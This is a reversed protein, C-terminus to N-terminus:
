KSKLPVRSTNELMDIVKDDPKKNDLNIGKMKTAIWNQDDDSAFGWDEKDIVEGNKFNIAGWFSEDDNGFYLSWGNLIGNEYNAIMSYDKAVLIGTGHVYDNLLPGEWFEGSSLEGKYFIDTNVDRKWSSFDGDDNWPMYVGSSAFINKLDNYKIWFYGDDGWDYGYSNLVKFSGGNRYDDYGIISVAHPGTQGKALLCNNNEDIFKQSTYIGTVVPFGYSIAEKIGNININYYWTGSIKEWDVFNLWQDVRYYKTMYGMKYLISKNLSIDCTLEPTLAQKKVGFNEVLELAKPISSGCDCGLCNLDSVDKLSSYIYNPDFSHVVQQSHVSINNLKNYLISLAGSVAFGTCSSADKQNKVIAYKELSYRSPIESSSFGFKEIDSYNVDNLTSEARQELSLTPLFQAQIFLFQFLLIFTLFRM